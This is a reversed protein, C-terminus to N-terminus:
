PELSEGCNRCYNLERGHGHHEEGCFTCFLTTKRNEHVEVRDEVGICDQRSWQRFTRNETYWACRQEDSWEQFDIPLDYGDSPDSNM